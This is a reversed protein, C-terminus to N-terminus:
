AARFLRVDGSVTKGRVVVTPGSGGGPANSLPVESSLSGSTSSADVDLNSGAAIGIEVDGSVCHVKVQGAQVSGLRVHGSVSKTTVSGAVSEVVVDGSVTVANLDGGIAPLRIDGSVTKLNANGLIEGTARLEGSAGKTDLRGFTGDLFADGAACTINVESRHPVSVRVQVDISGFRQGWGGLMKHRMDVVLAEGRLEVRILDLMRETGTVSVTSESGNVTRVEIDAVALKVELRVPRPTDFRQEIM